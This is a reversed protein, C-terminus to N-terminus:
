LVCSAVAPGVWDQKHGVWDASLQFGPHKQSHNIFNIDSSIVLARESAQAKKANGQTYWCPATKKSM